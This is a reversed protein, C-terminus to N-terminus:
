GQLGKALGRIELREDKLRTSVEEMIMGTAGGMLWNGTKMLREGHRLLSRVGQFDLSGYLVMGIFSGRHSIFHRLVKWLVEHPIAIASVAALIDKLNPRGFAEAM